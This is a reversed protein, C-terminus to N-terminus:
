YRRSKPNALWRAFAARAADDPLRRAAVAKTRPWSKVARWFAADDFGIAAADEQSNAYVLRSARSWLIASFCMPCPECSAYVAAGSLDHSKLRRCADRIAVVEAHATPDCSETVRNRGRGVVRGNLVVVAGFPGGKGSRANAASEAIAAQLFRRDDARAPGSRKKM